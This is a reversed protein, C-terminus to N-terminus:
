CSDNCVERRIIALGDKLFSRNSGHRIFSRYPPSGRYWYGSSEEPLLCAALQVRHRCEMLMCDCIATRSSLNNTRFVLRGINVLRAQMVFRVRLLGM